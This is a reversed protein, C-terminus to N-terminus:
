KKMNEKEKLKQERKRLIPGRQKKQIQQEAFCKDCNKGTSHNECSDCYILGSAGVWKGADLIEKMRDTKLMRCSPCSIAVAGM